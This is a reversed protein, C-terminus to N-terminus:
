CLQSYDQQAPKPESESRGVEEAVCVCEFRTGLFRTQGWECVLLMFEVVVRQGWGSGYVINVSAEHAILVIDRVNALM